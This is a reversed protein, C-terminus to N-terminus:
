KRGTGTTSTKILFRTSLNHLNKDLVPDIIDYAKQVLPGYKLVAKATLNKKLYVALATAASGLIAAIIPELFTM